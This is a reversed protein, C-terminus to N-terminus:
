TSCVPEKAALERLWEFRFIGTSHGDAFQFQIAYRGVASAGNIAKTQNERYCINARHGQCEACPCWGRLFTIPLVSKVGDAWDIEVQRRENLVRIDKPLFKADM